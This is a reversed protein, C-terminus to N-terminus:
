NKGAALVAFFSKKPKLNEDFLCPNGVSIWSTYDDLGWMTVRTIHEKYQRLLQFLRGYIRAQANEDESYMESNKGNGWNRYTQKDAIDLESIDVNVGLAIFREISARVDSIQLDIGYHGQMGIGDILNRNNGEARYRDNLEKVMNRVALAKSANNLGYDNYYLRLDPDAARATRFALEVYDEGLAQYWGSGSRLSKKWDGGSGDGFAENVVDWSLVRGKFHKLVTNIHNIMNEKVQEKTGQTMWAPTQSHWVLTHGHVKINRELMGNVLYDATEWRYSEGKVHPALHDPKMDNECTVTNFHTEILELYDLSSMYRTNIINGILFDNKYVDKLPLIEINGIDSTKNECTAANLFLVALLIVSFKKIM